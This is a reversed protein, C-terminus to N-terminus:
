CMHIKVYDNQPREFPPDGKWIGGIGRQCIKHRTTQKQKVLGDISQLKVDKKGPEFREANAHNGEGKDEEAM